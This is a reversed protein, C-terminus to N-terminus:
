LSLSCGSAPGSTPALRRARTSSVRRVCIRRCARVPLRAPLGHPAVRDRMDVAFLITMPIVRVKGPDHLLRRQARALPLEFALIVVFLGVLIGLLSAISAADLGFSPSLFGYLLASLIVFTFIGVRHNWFRSLLTAPPRLRRVAHSGAASRKRTRRTLRTSSSVRSRPSSCSCFRLCRVRPRRCSTSALRENFTPVLAPFSTPPLGGTM